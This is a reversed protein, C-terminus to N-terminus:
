LVCKDNFDNSVLNGMSQFHRLSVVGKMFWKVEADRNSLECCIKYLGLGLVNVGLDRKGNAKTITASDNDFANM